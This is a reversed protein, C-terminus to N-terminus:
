INDAEKQAQARINAALQEGQTTAAAVLERSKAEAAALKATSEKLTVEAQARAKEADEIDKRIREERKQLGNVISRWATPYLLALMIIFILLVWFAGMTSERGGEDTGASSEHAKAETGAVNHENTAHEDAALAGSSPMMAFTTALTLLLIFKKLSLMS